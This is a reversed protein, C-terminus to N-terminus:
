LQDLVSLFFEKDKPHTLLLAVAAPKVWVAQPNEPGTPNLDEQNTRFLFLSISKLESPDEGGNRGIKYREYTPLKKVLELRTIGSEERIERKAATLEDEGEEIHGKPLSWSNGNQNVVLIEGELNM